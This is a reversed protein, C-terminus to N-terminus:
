VLDALNECSLLGEPPSPCTSGYQSMASADESLALARTWMSARSFRATSVVARRSRKDSSNTEDGLGLKQGRHQPKM